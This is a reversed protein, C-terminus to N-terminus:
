DVKGKFDNHTRYQPADERVALPRAKGLKLCLDRLESVAKIRRTIAQSSMDTKMTQKFESYLDMDAIKHQREKKHLGLPRGNTGLSAPLRM